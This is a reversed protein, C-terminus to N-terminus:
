DCRRGAALRAAFPAAAEFGILRLDRREEITCPFFL